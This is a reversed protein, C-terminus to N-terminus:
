RGKPLNRVAGLVKDHLSKHFFNCTNTFKVPTYVQRIDSPPLPSGRVTRVMIKPSSFHRFDPNFRPVVDLNGGVRLESDYEEDALSEKGKVVILHM